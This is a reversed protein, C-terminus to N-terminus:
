ATAYGSYQRVREPIFYLVIDSKAVGKDILLQAIDDETRNEFIWIKGDEKIHLHIATNFYYKDKDQWGAEVVQYHHHVTDSVILTEIPNADQVYTQLVTLIAAQYKAIKEM